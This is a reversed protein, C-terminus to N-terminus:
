VQTTVYAGGTVVATGAARRTVVALYERLTLTVLLEQAQPAPTVSLVPEDEMLIIAERPASVIIQTKTTTGVVPINDDRFWALGGPMPVGTFMSLAAEEGADTNIASNLPPAEVYQPVLIPREQSDIQRTAYSFLDSTTFVHTPTVRVGAVDTLKERALAIDKYLGKTSYSSEGSVAEGNAIAVALTLIDVREDLQQRLQAHLITDMAGGGTYARDALQQTLTIRGAATQVTGAQLAAAPDTDTVSAGETQATVADGSSFSPVYVNMGYPPLPHKECQDAFSRVAGRYPAWADLLFAPSVFAAAGSLAAATTGGGTSIARLDAVAEDVLRRTERDDASRYRANIIRLAREGEASHRDIEAALEAAYAMLRSRADVGQPQVTGALWVDAYYSYPSNTGYTRPEHSVRTERDRALRKEVITNVEDSTFTRQETM